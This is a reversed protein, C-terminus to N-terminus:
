KRNTEKLRNSLFKEFKKRDDNNHDNKAYVKEVCYSTNGTKLERVQDRIIKAKFKDKPNGEEKLMDSFVRFPDIYMIIHTPRNNNSTSYGKPRAFRKLRNADVPSIKVEHRFAVSDFAKMDNKDYSYM